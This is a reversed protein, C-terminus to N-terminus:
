RDSEGESFVLIGGLQQRLVEDNDQGLLMRIRDTYNWEEFLRNGLLSEM